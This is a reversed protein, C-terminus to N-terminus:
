MGLTDRKAVGRRNAGRIMPASTVDSDFHAKRTNSVAVSQAKLGMGNGMVDINGITNSGNSESAEV